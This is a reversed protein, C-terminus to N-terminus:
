TRDDRPRAAESGMRDHTDPLFSTQEHVRALLAAEDTDVPLSKAMEGTSNM